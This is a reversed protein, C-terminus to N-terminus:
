LKTKQSKSQIGYNDLWKRLADAAQKLDTKNGSEVASLLDDVLGGVKVLDRATNEYIAKENNQLQILRKELNGLKRLLQQVTEQLTTKDLKKLEKM